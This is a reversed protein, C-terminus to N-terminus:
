SLQALNTVGSRHSLNGSSVVETPSQWVCKNKFFHLVSDINNKGWDARTIWKTAAQNPEFCHRHLCYIPFKSKNGPNRFFHSTEKKSKSENSRSLQFSCCICISQFKLFPNPFHKIKVMINELNPIHKIEFISRSFAQNEVCDPTEDVCDSM